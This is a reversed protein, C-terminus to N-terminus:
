YEEYTLNPVSGSLDVVTRDSLAKCTNLFGALDIVEVYWQGARFSYSYKDNGCDKFGMNSPPQVFNNVIAEPGYQKKVYELTNERPLWDEYTVMGLDELKAGKFPAKTLKFIPTHRYDKYITIKM